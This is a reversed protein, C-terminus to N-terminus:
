VILFLCCITLFLSILGGQRCGTQKIFIPDSLFGCLLLTAFINTNFTIFWKIANQGFGLRNQDKKYFSSLFPTLHKNKILLCLLGQFKVKNLSKSQLFVCATSM